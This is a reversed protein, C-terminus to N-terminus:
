VREYFESFSSVQLRFKLSVNSGFTTRVVTGSQQMSRASNIEQRLM